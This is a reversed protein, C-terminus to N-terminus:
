FDAENRIIQCTTPTLQFGLRAPEKKYYGELARTNQSSRIDNLRLVFFM